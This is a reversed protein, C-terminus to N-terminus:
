DINRFEATCLIAQCFQILSETKSDVTLFELASAEEDVTPKRGFCLRFVYQIAARQDDGAEDRVRKALAAAREQVFPSNMLYLAQTPVNTTERSGSVFSASAFDFLELVDPLRDRIM